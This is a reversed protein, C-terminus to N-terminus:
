IHILWINNCWQAHYIHCMIHEQEIDVNILPQSWYISCFDGNMLNCLKLPTLLPLFLDNSIAYLWNNCLIGPIHRFDSVSFWISSMALVQICGVAQWLEHLFSLWICYNTIIIFCFIRYWRKADRALINGIETCNRWRLEYFLNDANAYM